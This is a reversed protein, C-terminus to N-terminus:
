GDRVHRRSASYPIQPRVARTCEADEQVYGSQEVGADVVSFLDQNLLCKMKIERNVLLEGLIQRHTQETVSKTRYEKSCLCKHFSVRPDWPILHLRAQSVRSHHNLKLPPQDKVRKVNLSATWLILNYNHMLKREDTYVWQSLRKSMSGILTVSMYFFIMLAFCVRLCNTPLIITPFSVECSIADLHLDRSIHRLTVTRSTENEIELNDLYWRFYSWM